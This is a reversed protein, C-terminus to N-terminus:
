FTYYYSLYTKNTLTSLSRVFRLFFTICFLQTCKLGSREEYSAAMPKLSGSEPETTTVTLQVRPTFPCATLPHPVWRVSDRAQPIKATLTHSTAPTPTSQSSTTRRWITDRSRRRRMGSWSLMWTSRTLRLMEMSTAARMTMTRRSMSSAPRASLWDRSARSGHYTATRTYTSTSCTPARSLRM